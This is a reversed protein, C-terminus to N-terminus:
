MMGKISDQRYRDFTVDFRSFLQGSHLVSEVFINAFDGFTICQLRKRLAMVSVQGDIGLSSTSDLMIEPPCPVDRTLIDTMASKNGVRFHGNLEALALPVPM